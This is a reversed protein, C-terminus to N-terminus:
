FRVRIGAKGGFSTFDGSLDSEVQFFGSVPGENEFTIGAELHAYTGVPDNVFSVSDTPIVFRTEGDGAFERVASADVYYGITTKASASSEGGLRVGAAGRLGDMAGFEFRQAAIDLDDIDTQQFDMSVRPEVYFTDGGLRYGAELRAGYANGAVDGSFGGEAPDTLAGTIHDYKLLAEVYFGDSVYSAALGINLADFRAGNGNAALRFQSNVYGGTIGLTVQESLQHEVGAQLGFYDQSYDLVANGVTLGTPNSFLENRNVAAGYFTAWSGKVDTKSFRASARHDAWADTSRYWLSQAAEAIQTGEFIRENVTLGVLFDFAAADFTLDFSLFPGIGSLESALSFATEETGAGADVLLVNDSFGATVNVPTIAIATTGTAARAITFLDSAGAAFDVDLALTGGTGVFNGSTTIAGNAAGNVLTIMGGNSLRELGTFAAIGAVLLTGSNAFVDSGGGFDSTGNAQFTGGNTLSDDAGAFQVASALIGSNGLTIPGTNAGSALVAFDGGSLAGSNSISVAGGETSVDVGNQAGFTLGTLNMTVSGAGDTIAVIANISGMIDGTGSVAIDGGAANAVIGSGGIGNVADMDSVIIAGGSSALDLGNGANGQVLDINDVIIDGGGSRAYIGTMAGTIEGSSGKVTISGGISTSLIGATASGDVVATSGLTISTSGTTAVTRIGTAGSVDDVFLSMAGDSRQDALIGYLEGSVNGASSDITLNLGDSAANIGNRMTGVVDATVITSNGTGTNSTRIGDTLGTVTGAVTNVLVNGGDASALIGAGAIGTVNATTVSTDGTGANDASVGIAGTIAYNSVDITVNGAGGAASGYAGYTTGSVTGIGGSTGINITGGDDAYAAIGVGGTATIGGVLGVNQISITGADSSVFIGNGNLGSITGIDTVTIDGGNSVLNLGDGDQGTVSDLNTVTIAAGQASLAIGTTAGIVNSDVVENGQVIIAASAQTTSALIGEGNQGTVNGVTITVNDSGAHNAYIGRNSGVVAGASTDIDLTTSDADNSVNVGDGDVAQVGATVISTMGGNTNNASIGNSYGSVSGASSDIILDTGFNVATIGNGTAGTVNASVVSLLGTGSNIAVVGDTEGGISGAASNVLLDTGSNTVAIGAASAGTVDATTILLISTGQNNASIGNNFGTVAGAASNIILESGTNTATIGDGSGGTVNAANIVLLGTANTAGIGNTAGKITGATSNIITDVGVNSALIGEAATGTVDATTILLVTSGQNSAAIGANAGTVSGAASNIDIGLGAASNAADIGNAAAGAVEATAIILSGTGRNNAAIGNQGGSLGGAVSNILLDTGATNNDAAIGDGSGGVAGASTVILAGAGNNDADIGSASGSVTGAASNIILDAGRSQNVASIGNGANGTVDAAIILMTGTGDHQADIGAIGGSVSGASSDVTMNIGDSRAYIGNDRTGTVNAVTISLAGSGYNRAYIGDTVGSVSGASSDITLDTGTSARAFIGAASRGTVNASTISLAGSGDNFAGIGYSGGSVSGASSDIALSTGNSKRALIGHENTGTVNASTITLAGSGLHTAYIGNALGSVSGASSDIILDTGLSHRATIGSLRTGTVDATAISLVGTGYSQAFIGDGDGAVSGASSDITLDTGASNRADIGTFSAGTVDATTVSLAGNGNNRLVVGGSTGSVSGASSDVFMDYGDNLATIGSGGSGIVDATTISLFGTGRNRAQIGSTGGEVTGSTSDLIVNTGITPDGYGSAILIGNQTGGTVDGTIVVTEGGGYNRADIGYSAGVVSGASSDVILDTGNPAYDFGNQARIGRAGNGSTVDATTISLSGTGRHTAVIGGNQGIVSGASSDITLGTTTASNQANIGVGSTSTVNATIITTSGTGDNEVDIGYDAGSVFGASSDVNLFTGRSTNAAEIGYGTQGTVDATTISVGGFGNNLVDIGDRSATVSGSTTDINIDTGYGVIELGDGNIASVDGTTITTTGSGRNLALVGFSGSSVAGASTDITLDTGNFNRADIANGVAGSVEATTISVAGTGFSVAEIGIDGGSVSGATSDIVLDTTTPNAYSGSRANIGDGSTGTINATTISLTGNLANVAQIGNNGGSVSGAVTKITTGAGYAKIGDGTEGVVDGVIITLTTSSGDAAALLGDTGGIISSTGSIQSVSLDGLSFFDLGRTATGSTDVAFGDEIQVTLDNLIGVNQTTTAPGGNDQCVVEGPTVEICADQAYAPTSAAMLALPAAAWRLMSRLVSVNTGPGPNPALGGVGVLGLQPSYSAAQGKVKTMRGGRLMTSKCWPLSSSGGSITNLLSSTTSHTQPKNYM